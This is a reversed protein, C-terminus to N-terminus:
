DEPKSAAERWYLRKFYTLLYGQEISYGKGYNIDYGHETLKDAAMKLMDAAYKQEGAESWIYPSQPLSETAEALTERAIAALEEDINCPLLGWMADHLVIEDMTMGRKKGDAVHAAVEDIQAIVYDIYERPQIELHEYDEWKYWEEAYYDQAADYRGSIRELEVRHVIKATWAAIHELPTDALWNRLEENGLSFKPGYLAYIKERFDDDDWHPQCVITNERAYTGKLIIDIDFPKHTILHWAAAQLPTQGERRCIDFQPDGLAQNLQELSEIKYQMGKNNNTEAQLTVAKRRSQWINTARINEHM